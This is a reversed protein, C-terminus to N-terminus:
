GRPYEHFVATTSSLEQMPAHRFHTKQRQFGLLVDKRPERQGSRGVWPWLPASYDGFRTNDSEIGSCSWKEREYDM